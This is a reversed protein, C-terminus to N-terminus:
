QPELALSQSLMPTLQEAWVEYGAEVLHLQDKNFLETKVKGHSVEFAETMDLYHVRDGDDLNQISANIKDVRTSFYDNQRPLIGCLIITTDPLKEKLTSVITEIGKAIEQNKGANFDKYLNNTGIMLVIARPNLGDIEGNEIRWLIQRTSDGGIGYNAANLPAFHQKWVKKGAGSWGQTISDGFFMVDINGEATQKLLKNHKQKWANPHKPYFGEAPKWPKDAAPKKSTSQPEEPEDADDSDSSETAEDETGEEVTTAIRDVQLKVAQASDGFNTGQIQFNKVSTLDKDPLAVYITTFTEENLEGLPLSFSSKGSEGIINISLKIAENGELLRATFALYKEDNPTINKGNLVLGGGGAETADIVLYGADEDKAVTLTKNKKWTKGYTYNINKGPGFDYVKTEAQAQTAFLFTAAVTIGALSTFRTM